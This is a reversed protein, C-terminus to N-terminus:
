SLMPSIMALTLCPACIAYVFLVLSKSWQPLDAVAAPVDDRRVVLRCTTRFTAFLVVMAALSQPLFTVAVACVLAPELTKVIPWFSSVSESSAAQLWWGNAAVVYLSAYVTAVTSYGGFSLTVFSTLTQVALPAVSAVAAWFVHRPTATLSAEFNTTRYTAMLQEMDYKIVDFPVKVANKLKEGSSKPADTKVSGCSGQLDASKRDSADSYSKFDTAMVAAPTRFNSAMTTNTTGKPWARQTWLRSVNSAALPSGVPRPAACVTWLGYSKPTLCNRLWLM